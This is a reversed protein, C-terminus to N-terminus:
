LQANSCGPRRAYRVHRYDAHFKREQRRRAVTQKADREVTARSEVAIGADRAAEKAARLM